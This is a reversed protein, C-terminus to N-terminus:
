WATGTCGTMCCILAAFRMMSTAPLRGCGFASRSYIISRLLLRMSPTAGLFGDLLFNLRLLMPAKDRRPLYCPAPIYSIGRGALRTLDQAQTELVLGYFRRRGRESRLAACSRSIWTAPMSTSRQYSSNAPLAAAPLQLAGTLLQLLRGYAPEAVRIM